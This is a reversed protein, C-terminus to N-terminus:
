RKKWKKVGAVKKEKKSKMKSDKKALMMESTPLFFLPNRATQGQRIEFHLHLGTARGTRGMLAIKDGVDVKQGVRVLNQKNHAYATYFDDKHRLLILNGYGRMKGSFVVEGDGAANIEGGNGCKIDVGDHRRNKRIGFNSLIYGECPWNFRGHQAEIPGEHRDKKKRSYKESGKLKGAFPLKKYVKKDKRPIYINMGPKVDEPNSINNLEALEQVDVDYYYSLSWVSDGERVKHFAGKKDFHLACGSMVSLSFFIIMHWIFRRVEM